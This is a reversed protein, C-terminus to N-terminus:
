YSRSGSDSRKRKNDKRVPSRSRSRSNSKKRQHDRRDRDGGRERDRDYGGRERDGGYSGRSGGRDGGYSGRDNNFERPKRASMLLFYVNQVNDPWTDRKNATSADEPDIESIEELLDIEEKMTAELGTVEEIEMHDETVEEEEGLTITLNKKERPM